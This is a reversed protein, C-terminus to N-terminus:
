LPINLDVGAPNALPGAPDTGDVAFLHGLGCVITTNYTWWGDNPSTMQFAEITALIPRLPVTLEYRGNGAVDVEMYGRGLVKGAVDQAQIDVRAHGSSDIPLELALETFGSTFVNPQQASRDGLTTMVRLRVTAADVGQPHVVLVPHPYEEPVCAGGV